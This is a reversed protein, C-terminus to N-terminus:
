EVEDSSDEVKYYDNIDVFREYDEIKKACEDCWPSIWGVSVKTAPKGCHICIRKSLSEYKNIIDYIKCRYLIKRHEFVYNGDEDSKVQRWFNEKFDSKPGDKWDKVKVIDDVESLIGIPSGSDYWRLMAYKEKIQLIRYGEVANCKELEKQIEECMEEGFSKRWGDPMADLETYSYDYDDSVKDTWRNHPLLWPYKKILEKNRAIEQEKTLENDM